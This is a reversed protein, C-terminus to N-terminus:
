RVVFKKRKTVYVGAPLKGTMRVGMLSYVPADTGNGTTSVGSVTNAVDDFAFGKASASKPLALFAKHAGSSFAAGNDEGWYFGVSNPDGDANLSLMYYKSMDAVNTTADVDYGYLNTKAPAEGVEDSAIFTYNGKQAKLVVAVGKPITSGSDYTKSEVLSNKEADYAYTMATVGDPVKLARDGYYMTSYGVSSVSDQVDSPIEEFLMPKYSGSVTFTHKKTNFYVQAKTGKNIINALYPSQEGITIHWYLTNYGVFDVVDISTSSKKNRWFKGDSQQITYGNKSDGKITFILNENSTSITNDAFTVVVSPIDTSGSDKLCAAYYNNYDRVIMYRRGSTISTAKKFTYVPSSQAPSSVSGSKSSSGGLPIAPLPSSHVSSESTPIVQSPVFQDNVGGLAQMFSCTQASAQLNFMVLMVLALHKAITKM